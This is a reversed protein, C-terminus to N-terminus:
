IRYIVVVVEGVILPHDDMGTSRYIPGQWEGLSVAALGDTVKLRAQALEVEDARVREPDVAFRGDCRDDAKL